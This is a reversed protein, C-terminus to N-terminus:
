FLNKFHMSLQVLEDFVANHKRLFHNLDTLPQLDSCLSYSEISQNEMLGVELGQVCPKQAVHHKLSTQHHEIQM